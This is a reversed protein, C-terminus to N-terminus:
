LSFMSDIDPSDSASHDASRVPSRFALSLPRIYDPLQFAEPVPPEIPGAPPSTLKAFNDSKSRQNLPKDTSFTSKRSGFLFQLTTDLSYLFTPYSM